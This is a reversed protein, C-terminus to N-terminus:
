QLIPDAELVSRLKQLARNQIQRVREKSLGCTAGVQELTLRPRQGHPFRQELIKSERDSLEGLNQELARHLRDVYLETWGDETPPEPLPTDYTAPFLRRRRSTRRSLRILSRTIANYAYTSFRVGRWPDFWDVARVLALLGEGRLEDLELLASRFRSVSLYVLGLNSQVIHTCIARRRRLWAARTSPSLRGSHPRQMAGYTCAHLAVFLEHESPESEAAEKGSVVRAIRLAEAAASKTRLRADKPYWMERRGGPKVSSTTTKRPSGM